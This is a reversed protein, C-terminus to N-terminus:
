IRVLAVSLAILSVGLLLLLVQVLNEVWDGAFVGNDFAMGFALGAIVVIVFAMVVLM